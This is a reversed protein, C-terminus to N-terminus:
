PRSSSYTTEPETLGGGGETKGAFESLSLEFLVAAVEEDPVAFGGGEEVDELAVLFCDVYDLAMGVLWHEGDAADIM